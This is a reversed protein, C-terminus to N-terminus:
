IIQGSSNIIDYNFNSPFNNSISVNILGTTPNPVVITETNGDEVSTKTFFTKMAYIKGDRVGLMKTNDLSIEKPVTIFNYVYVVERTDIDYIHNDFDFGYVIQNSNRSFLPGFPNLEINTEISNQNQIDYIYIHNDKFFPFMPRYSSITLYDSYSPTTVKDYVELTHADYIYITDPANADDVERFELQAVIYNGDPTLKNAIWNFYGGTPNKQPDYLSERRDEFIVVETEIDVVVLNTQLSSKATRAVGIIRKGDPSIS